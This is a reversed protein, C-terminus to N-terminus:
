SAAHFVRNNQLSDCLEAYVDHMRARALGFKGGGPRDSALASVIRRALPGERLITEMVSAWATSFDGDGAVATEVLHQWIDGARAEKAHIGFASLYDTDRIVAAEADMTTALLISNLPETDFNKQRELPQWRESVLARLVCTLAHAVAIDATPCEQIDIIRIEIADRDFRAIAGRANLWEEQLVEDPDHPAIAAYMPALVKEEYERKSYVPEPIVYGTISAIREQNKRYFHMRSDM